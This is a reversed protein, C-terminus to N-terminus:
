LDGVKHKSVFLYNREAMPSNRPFKYWKRDFDAGMDADTCILAGSKNFNRRAVSRFEGQKIELDMQYHTVDGKKAINEKCATYSNLHKTYYKAGFDTLVFKETWHITKGFVKVSNEDYYSAEMNQNPVDFDIKTWKEAGSAISGALFVTGLAMAAVFRKM